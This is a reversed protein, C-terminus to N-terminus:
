EKRVRIYLQTEDEPFSINYSTENGGSDVGDAIEEWDDTSPPITPSSDLAYTAGDGSTWTVKAQAVGDVAPLLEIKTIEFGDGSSPAAGVNEGGILEWDSTDGDNAFAGQAFYFEFFAGGGREWAIVEFKYTGAPIGELVARTNSDGTNAPHTVFEPYNPDIGGAGSVSSFPHGALRFGFGDDSHVGITYDGTEPIILNATGIIVFDDATLGEEEAPIPEDGGFFGGGGPETSEAMNIVEVATDQQEGLWYGGKASEAAEIANNLGDITGGSWIQRLGWMGVTGEPEGLGELSWPPAPSYIATGARSSETGLTSAATLSYPVRSEPPFGSAPNYVFTTVGDVKSPDGLTVPQGNVNVVVSSADLIEDGNDSIEINLGASGLTVKSITVGFPRAPLLEFDGDDPAPATGMGRYAILTVGAGGGAEWHVFKVDHVGATLLVEMITDARGRNPATGVEVDDIVLSFGDDSNCIFTVTTEEVVEIQGTVRLAFNDRAGFGRGGNEPDWIPYPKSQAVFYPPATNDHFNIFPEYTTYVERADLNGDILDEATTPDGPADGASWAHEVLWLGGGVFNTPIIAPDFASSPTVSSEVFDSATDNDTDRLNPNTGTDTASVFTGTNTEVIDPLGDKDTDTSRPNTGTNTASVWIGTNTEIPDGLGDGDSDPNNALTGNNYEDLNSITDGDKDLAADDVDPDLGNETEYNDPIGDGDSDNPDLVTPLAGGTFISQIEDETLPRNWIALDDIIGAWTRNRADPNEGVMVPQTNTGAPNGSASADLVGDIWLSAEGLEVDRVAVVHHLEGDNVDTVGVLDGVDLGKYAFVNSGGNRHVRWNTGEGKAILAQWDKTFSDVSFWASVTFGNETFNFDAESNEIQIFQDIGDLHAGNGFKGPSFEIPAAGMEIGDYDDGKTNELNSDFPWYGVLGEALQAHTLPAAACWMLITILGWLSLFRMNKM